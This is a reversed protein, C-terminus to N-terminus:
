FDNKLNLEKETLLLEEFAPLGHYLNIIIRGPYNRSPWCNEINSKDFVLIFKRHQIKLFIEILQSYIGKGCNKKIERFDFNPFNNFVLIDLNLERLMALCDELERPSKEKKATKM